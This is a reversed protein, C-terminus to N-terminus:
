RKRNETAAAQASRYAGMACDNVFAIIDAMDYYESTLDYDSYDTPCRFLMQHERIQQWDDPLSIGIEDSGTAILRSLTSRCKPCMPKGVAFHTSLPSNLDAVAVPWKVDLYDIEEPALSSRATAERATARRLAWAGFLAVILAEAAVALLMHWVKVGDTLLGQAPDRLWLWAAVGAGLLSGALLILLTWGLGQVHFM